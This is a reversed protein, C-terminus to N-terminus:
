KSMEKITEKFSEQAKAKSITEIAGVGNRGVGCVISVGEVDVLVLRTGDGLNLMGRLTMPGQGFRGNLRDRYRRLFIAAAALVALLLLVSILSSINSM